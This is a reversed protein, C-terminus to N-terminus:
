LNKNERFIKMMKGEQWPYYSNQIISTEVTYKKGLASLLKQLDNEILNGRIRIVEWDTKLSILALVENFYKTIDDTEVTLRRLKECTKHINHMLLQLYNNDTETGIVILLSHIEAFLPRSTNIMLKFWINLLRNHQPNAFIEIEASCFFASSDSFVKQMCDVIATCLTIWEMDSLEKVKTNRNIWEILCANFMHNHFRKIYTSYPYLWPKYEPFVLKNVIAHLEEQRIQQMFTYVFSSNNAFGGFSYRILLTPNHWLLPVGISYWKRNVLICFYLSSPSLTRLWSIIKRLITDITAVKQKTEITYKVAIPKLKRSDKGFLDIYSM